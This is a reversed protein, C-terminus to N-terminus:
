CRGGCRESGEPAKGLVRTLEPKVVAEMCDPCIGHSFRAESHRAIYGEVQQWYNSDDRIKKCYCCIPLLGQLQKVSALAQELESVRCRLEEQLRVVQGAVQVRAALEERDFPKTVYDNAGARLGEILHDRGDRATLLIIYLSRLRATQRARRCLEVGDLGPMLWDIIALQPADDAQLLQWAVAGDAATQVTHGGKRLLAQLALLSVEDDDAILIRM